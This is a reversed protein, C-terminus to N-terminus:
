TPIILGDPIPAVYDDAADDLLTVSEIFTM